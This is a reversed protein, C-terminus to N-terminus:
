IFPRVCLLFTRRGFHQSYYDAVITPPLSPVAGAFFGYVLALICLSEFSKMVPWVAAALALVFCSASLVRHRAFRDATLGLAVRGCISALGMLSLLLAARGKTM